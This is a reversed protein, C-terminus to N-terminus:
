PSDIHLVIGLHRQLKAAGHIKVLNDEICPSVKRMVVPPLLHCKGKGVSGRLGHLKFLANFRMDDAQLALTDCPKGESLEYLCVIRGGERGQRLNLDIAPFM